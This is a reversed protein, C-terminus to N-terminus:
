IADGYWIRGGDVGLRTAPFQLVFTGNANIRLGRDLGTSVLWEHQDKQLHELVTKSVHHVYIPSVEEIPTASSSSSSLFRLPNCRIAQRRATYSISM